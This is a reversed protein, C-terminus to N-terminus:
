IDRTEKKLKSLRAASLGRIYVKQFFMFVLIVPVVSFISGAMLVNWQKFASEVVVQLSDM